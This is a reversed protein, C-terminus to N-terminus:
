DTLSECTEAELVNLAIISFRLSLWVGAKEAAEFSEYGAMRAIEDVQQKPLTIERLMGDLRQWQEVTLPVTKILQM